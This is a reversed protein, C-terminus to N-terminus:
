EKHVLQEKHAEQDQQEEQGLQELIEMVVEKAEIVYQDLIEM